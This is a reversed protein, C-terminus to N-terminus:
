VPLAHPHLDFGRLLITDAVAAVVPGRPTALVAPDNVSGDHAAVQWHLAGTTPDLDWLDFRGGAGPAVNSAGVAYL